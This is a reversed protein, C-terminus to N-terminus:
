GRVLPPLFSRNGRIFTARKRKAKQSGRTKSSFWKKRENLNGYSAWYPLMLFVGSWRRYDYRLNFGGLFSGSLACLPRPRPRVDSTLLPSCLLWAWKDERITRDYDRLRATESYRTCGWEKGLLLVFLLAARLTERIAPRLAFCRTSILPNWEWREPYWRDLKMAFTPEVSRLPSAVPLRPLTRDAPVPQWGAKQLHIIAHCGTDRPEGPIVLSRAGRNPRSLNARARSLVRSVCSLEEYGSIARRMKLNAKRNSEASVERLIDLSLRSQPLLLPLPYRAQERSCRNRSHRGNPPSGKRKGM